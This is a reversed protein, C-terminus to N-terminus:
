SEFYTYGSLGNRFLDMVERREGPSINGKSVAKEAFSRFRSV